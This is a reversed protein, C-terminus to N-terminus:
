LLMRVFAWPQRSIYKHQTEVSSMYWRIALDVGFVFLCLLDVLLYTNINEDGPKEAFALTCMIAVVLMYVVRYSESHFLENLFLADRDLRYGIKRGHIGDNIFAAAILYRDEELATGYEAATLIPDEETEETITGATDDFHYTPVGSGLRRKQEHALQQRHKMFELQVESAMSKATSNDDDIDTLRKWKKQNDLVAADLGVRVRGKPRGPSTAMFSGDSDLSGPSARAAVGAQYSPGGGTPPVLPTKEDDRSSMRRPWAITVIIPNQLSSPLETILKKLATSEHQGRRGISSGRKGM